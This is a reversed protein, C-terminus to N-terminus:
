AAVPQDTAVRTVRTTVAEASKARHYTVDAILEGNEISEPTNVQEGTEVTFAEAPTDGHLSPLFGLMVGTLAMNFASITKPTIEKFVFGSAAKDLQADVAMDLRVNSLQLYLRDTTPDVLTRNGYLMIVGDLERIVNISGHAAFAIEPCSLEQTDEATFNAKVARVYPSAIGNDGAAAVNPSNVADSRAILAAAIASPPCDRTTGASNGPIKVWPTYAAGRKATALARLPTTAAKLAAKATTREAATTAVVDVLDLLARRNTADCHALVDTHAQQTTRGPMSEQGPGMEANCLDLAAKFQADLANARDDTGGSLAAAAAVTPLGSDAALNTVNVHQSTESWDILGQETTQEPSVELLTSAADYIKLVRTSSGSPGNAVEVKIGNAYDGLYKASVKLTDGSAGALNRSAAAAAPGVVRSIVLNSGGRAFYAEVAVPAVSYTVQGGFLKAFQGPSSVATPGIPGKEFLQAIFWRGTDTPVSRAAPTASNIVNSGPRAV